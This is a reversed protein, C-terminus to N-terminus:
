RSRHLDSPYLAREVRYGGRGEEAAQDRDKEAKEAQDKAAKMRKANELAKRYTDEQAKLEEEKSATQRSKEMQSLQEEMARSAGVGAMYGAGMFPMASVQYGKWRDLAEQSVNLDPAQYPSQAPGGLLGVAGKVIPQEWSPLDAYPEEDIDIVEERAQAMAARLKAEEEPSM